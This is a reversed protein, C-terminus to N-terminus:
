ALGHSRAYSRADVRSTVGLKGFITSLHRKVTPISIYLSNAIERNTLGDAVLRLVDLERPTLGHEALAHEPATSVLTLELAALIARVERNAEEPTLAQGEAWVTAFEDEGITARADEIARDYAAREPLLFPEGLAHSRLAAGGFLRTAPRALGHSVALVAVVAMRVPLNPPEGAAPEQAFEESLATIASATDGCECAILGLLHLTSPAFHVYGTSRLLVVAAECHTMARKLDGQGYAATGLAEHSMAVNVDNGLEGFGRLARQIYTEAEEYRGLRLLVQGIQRLMMAADMRNDLTPNTVTGALSLAEELLALARTGAGQISALTGAHGTALGRLDAPVGNSRKLGQELLRRGEDINGLPIWLPFLRTALRLYREIEGAHDLWALAVRLNGREIDILRIREATAPWRPTPTVEEVVADFHDAHRQRVQEEEGSLALQELGFERITELMIFRPADNRKAGTPDAPRVLSTAVLATVRALTADDGDAIVTAGALDFGGVFVALRRFLTQEEPALLDYSWAIADRMSRLRAPQDRPGETLLELRRELLALLAGLPLSRVRAAALEIALPLGDLQMCITAIDALDAICTVVGHRAAAARDAFLRVAESSLLSDADARSGAPPLSMPAIDVVHEGSIGLLARSTAIITLDPCSALWGAILPGSELVHEFNDLVLLARRGTLFEQVAAEASRTRSARVGLAEAVTAAVLTSDRVPALAVFWVGDLFSGVAEEAVKLSLRTKGVGGPGTLTILRTDRHQSLAAISEVEAARGIFATLPRPWHSDPSPAGRAAAFWAARMPTSLGFADALRTITAPRPRRRAGRELDSVGRESLGTRKAVDGQSIGAAKRARRLLEGFSPSTDDM